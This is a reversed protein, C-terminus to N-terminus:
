KAQELAALIEPINEERIDGVHQLVIRGKGDIVFTEPVGSSGLALQVASQPDDGIRDYPNGNRALFNRIAVPTDRIALGDLTVGMRKLRLLMPAEAICPICWSAFINLLRPRGDAFTGTSLGAKGPLMTGVTFAPLRQGVMASRVVRDSPWYLASVIVLLLLAFVGLPLWILGRKM